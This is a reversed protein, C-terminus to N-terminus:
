PSDARALVVRIVRAAGAELLAQTASDLTAGTTMVDDVLIIHAGACDRTAQFAQALNEFRQGPEVLTQATTERTRSLWRAVSRAIRAEVPGTDGIISVPGLSSSAAAAGRLMAGLLGEALVEAQNFGRELWRQRSLPVPVVQWTTAPRVRADTQLIAQVQPALAMGMAQALSRAVSWRHQFKMAHILQSLPAAYSCLALTTILTPSADM